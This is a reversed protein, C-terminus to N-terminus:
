VGSSHFTPSHIFPSFSLFPLPHTPFPPFSQEKLRFETDGSTRISEMGYLTFTINLRKGKSISDGPQRQTKMHEDKNVVLPLSLVLSLKSGRCHM